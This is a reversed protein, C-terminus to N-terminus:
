HSKRNLGSNTESSRNDPVISPISPETGPIENAGTSGSTLCLLFRRQEIVNLRNVQQGLDDLRLAIKRLRVRLLLGGGVFVLAIVLLAYQGLAYQNLVSTFEDPGMVSGAMTEYATLSAHRGGFIM